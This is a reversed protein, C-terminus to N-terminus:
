RLGKFCALRTEEADGRSRTKWDGAHDQGTRVKVVVGAVVVGSVERCETLPTVHEVIGLLM